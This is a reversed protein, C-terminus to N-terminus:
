SILSAFSSLVKKNTKKNKLMSRFAKGIEAPTADEEVQFETSVELDNSALFYLADYATDTFEFSKNKSFIKSCEPTCEGHYNKYFTRFEYNTGIRFGIINVDPNRDKLNELLIYTPFTNLYNYSFSRYVKGTKKDRLRENNM